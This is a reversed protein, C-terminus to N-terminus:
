FLHSDLSSDQYGSKNERLAIVNNIITRFRYPNRKWERNMYLWTGRVGVFIGLCFALITIVKHM